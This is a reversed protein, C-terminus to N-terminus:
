RARGCCAGATGPPPGRKSTPCLRPNRWSPPGCFRPSGEFGRRGAGAGGLALLLECRIRDAAAADALAELAMGYLRVAEEHALPRVARDGAARAYEVAKSAVDTHRAAFFHHALEALHPDRDDAYLAELAEGIERHLRM